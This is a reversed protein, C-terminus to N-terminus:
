QHTEAIETKIVERTILPKLTEPKKAASMAATTIAKALTKMHGSKIKKVKGRFRKVNPRKVNTTFPAIKLIQAASKGPKSISPHVGAIKPATM